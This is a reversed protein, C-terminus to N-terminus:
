EKSLSGIVSASHFFDSVNLCIWCKQSPLTLDYKELVLGEELRRLFCHWAKMQLPYWRWICVDPLFIFIMIIGATKLPPPTGLDLSSASGKSLSIRCSILPLSQVYKLAFLLCSYFMDHFNLQDRFFIILDKALNGDFEISWVSTKCSSFVAWHSQALHKM